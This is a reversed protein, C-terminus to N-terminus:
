KTKPQIRRSNKQKIHASLDHPAIVDIKEVCSTLTVNCVVCFYTNIRYIGSTQTCSKCRVPTSVATSHLKIRKNNEELIRHMMRKYHLIPLPVISDPLDVGMVYGVVIFGLLVPIVHAESKSRNTLVYIKRSMATNIGDKGIELAKTLLCMNCDGCRYPHAQRELLVDVCRLNADWDVIKGNSGVAIYPMLGDADVRFAKHRRIRVYRVFDHVSEWKRTVSGIPITDGRVSTVTTKTTEIVHRNRRYKGKQNIVPPNIVPATTKVESLLAEPTTITSSQIKLRSRSSPEKITKVETVEPEVVIHERLSQWNHLNNDTSSDDEFSFTPSVCNSNHVQFEDFPDYDKNTSEYEFPTLLLPDVGGPLFSGLELTYDPDFQTPLTAM